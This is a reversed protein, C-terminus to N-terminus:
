YTYYWGTLSPDVQSPSSLIAADNCGRLSCKNDNSVNIANCKATNLCLSKCDNLSNISDGLSPCQNDSWTSTNPGHWNLVALAMASPQIYGSEQKYYLPNNPLLQESIHQYAPQPAVVSQSQKKKEDLYNVLMNFGIIIGILIIISIALSIKSKYKLIDM